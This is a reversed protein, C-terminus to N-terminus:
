THSSNLRTSKRDQGYQLTVFGAKSATLTWRGAPLDKLEFRGQADTSALRGARADASTARVQARRVPAGTDAVLVRGRIIATGSAQAGNDRPPAGFRGGGGLPGQPLGGPGGQAPLPLPHACILFLVVAVASRAIGRM